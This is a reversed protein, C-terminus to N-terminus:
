DSTIQFFIDLRPIPFTFLEKPQNCDATGTLIQYNIAPFNGFMKNKIPCCIIAQTIIGGGRKKLYNGIDIKRREV